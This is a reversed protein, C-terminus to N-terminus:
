HVNQSLSIHDQHPSFRRLKSCGISRCSAVVSGNERAVKCRNKAIWAAANRDHHYGSFQHDGVWCWDISQSVPKCHEVNTSCHRYVQQCLFLAQQEAVAESPGYGRYYSSRLTIMKKSLWGHYEYTPQCSFLSGEGLALVSVCCLSVAVLWIRRKM